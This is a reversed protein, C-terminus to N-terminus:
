RYVTDWRLGEKARNPKPDAQTGEWPKAPLGSPLSMQFERGGAAPAPSAPAAPAIPMM